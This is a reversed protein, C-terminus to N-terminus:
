KFVMKGHFTRGGLRVVETAWEEPFRALPLTSPDPKSPVAM